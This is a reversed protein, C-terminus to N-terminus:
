WYCLFRNGSRLGHGQLTIREDEPHFDRAPAIQHVVHGSHMVIRGAQYPLFDGTGPVTLREREAPSLSRWQPATIDPWWRLGSGAAPLALPLTFSFVSDWDPKELGDWCLNEYQLDLHVKGGSGCFAPHAQFIHFGPVAAGPHWEVTRGLHRELCACVKQYLPAFAQLLLPNYLSWFRAYSESGFAADLYAAAGLTFFPLEPDRVIWVQRLQHILDRWHHAEAADILQEQSFTAGSTPM